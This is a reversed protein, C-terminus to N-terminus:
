SLKASVCEDVPRKLEKGPEEYADKNRIKNFHMPHKPDWVIEKRRYLEIFEIVSEQTWEM